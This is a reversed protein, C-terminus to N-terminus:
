QEKIYKRVNDLHEKTQIFNKETPSYIVTIPLTHPKGCFKKGELCKNETLCKPGFCFDLFSLEGKLILNRITLAVIRIEDCNVYCSRLNIFHRWERLNATAIIKTNIGSPLIHRAEERKLGSNILGKYTIFASVAQQQYLENQKDTIKKPKPIEKNQAITYHLSQQAFSMLRHRVLQHTFNRSVGEIFFSFTVHELISLHEKVIIKTLLEKKATLTLLNKEKGYCVKAAFIMTDLPKETKSILTIKPNM